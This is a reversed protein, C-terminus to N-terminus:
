TSFGFSRRTAEVPCAVLITPYQLNYLVNLLILVGIASLSFRVKDSMEQPPHLGLTLFLGALSSWRVTLWMGLLVPSFFADDPIVLHPRNDINSGIVFYHPCMWTGLCTTIVGLMNMLIVTMVWICVPPRQGLIDVRHRLTPLCVMAVTLIATDVSLGPLYNSDLM